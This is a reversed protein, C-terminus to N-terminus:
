QRHILSWILSTGVRTKSKTQQLEVRGRNVVQVEGRLARMMDLKAPARELFDSPPPCPMSLKRPSDRGRPQTSSLTAGMQNTGGNDPLSINWQQEGIGTVVCARREPWYPWFWIPLSSLNYASCYVGSLPDSCLERFRAINTHLGYQM